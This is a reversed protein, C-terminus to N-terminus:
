QLRRPVNTSWSAYRIGQKLHGHTYQAFHKEVLLQVGSILEKRTIDFFQKSPDKWQGVFTCIYQKTVSYPYHNPLERTIASIFSFEPSLPVISLLCM